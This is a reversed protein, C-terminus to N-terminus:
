HPAPKQWKGARESVSAADARQAGVQRSVTAAYYVGHSWITRSYGFVAVVLLLAVSSVFIVKLIKPVGLMAELPIIRGRRDAFFPRTHFHILMQKMDM